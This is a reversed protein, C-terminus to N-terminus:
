NMYTEDPSVHESLIEYEGGGNSSVLMSFRCFDDGQITRLIYKGTILWCGEGVEDFETLKFDLCPDQEIYWRCFEMFAEDKNHINESLYHLVKAESNYMDFLQEPTGECLITNFDELWQNVSM